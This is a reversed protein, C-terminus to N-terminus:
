CGCGRRLWSLHVGPQPRDGFRRLAEHGHVFAHRQVVGCDRGSPSQGPHRKEFDAGVAALRGHVETGRAELDVRGGDDERDVVVATRLLVLGPPVSMSGVVPRNFVSGVNRRVM